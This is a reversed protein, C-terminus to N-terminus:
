IGIKPNIGTENLLLILSVAIHAKKIDRPKTPHYTAELREYFTYM